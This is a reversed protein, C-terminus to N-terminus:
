ETADVFGLKVEERSTEVPGDEDKRIGFYEFGDDSRFIFVFDANRVKTRPVIVVADDNPAYTAFSIVGQAFARMLTSTYDKIDEPIESRLEKWPKFQASGDRIKIITQTWL